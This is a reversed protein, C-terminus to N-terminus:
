GDIQGGARRAQITASLLATTRAHSKADCSYIRKPLFAKRRENADVCSHYVVRGYRARSSNRPGRYSAGSVVVDIARDDHRVSVINMEAEIHAVESPSNTGSNVSWFMM